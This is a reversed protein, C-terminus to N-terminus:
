LTSNPVKSFIREALPIHEYRGVDVELPLTGSGQKSTIRREYRTINSTLYPEPRMRDKHLRDRLKNGNICKKDNQMDM